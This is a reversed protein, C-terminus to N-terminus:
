DAAPALGLQAGLALADYYSRWSVIRGDRVRVVGAEDYAIENGTPAAEGAPLVLPGTHRARVRLEAVAVDGDEVVDLVEIRLDSCATTFGGALAAFGDPGHVTTFPNTIEADPAVVDPFTEFSGRVFARRIGEILESAQGM